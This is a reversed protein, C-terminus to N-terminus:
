WQFSVKVDFDYFLDGWRCFDYVLLVYKVCRIFYRPMSASVFGYSPHFPVCFWVTDMAAQPSRPFSAHAGVINVFIRVGYPLHLELQHVQNSQLGSSSGPKDRGNNSPPSSSNDFLHLTESVVCCYLDSLPKSINSLSFLLIVVRKGPQFNEVAQIM